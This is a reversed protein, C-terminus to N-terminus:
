DLGPEETVCILQGKQRVQFRVPLFQELLWTMTMGHSSFLRTLFRSTGGALALYTLVQDTAQVDCTPNWATVGRRCMAICGRQGCGSITAALGPKARRARINRLHVPRGTIAALAVSTRLLQGGGEGYAADIGHM